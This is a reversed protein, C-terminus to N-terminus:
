FFYHLVAGVLFIVVGLGGILISHKFPPKGGDFNLGGAEGGIFLGLILLAVGLFCCVMAVTYM